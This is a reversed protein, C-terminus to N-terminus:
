EEDYGYEYEEDYEIEDDCRIENKDQQQEEKEYYGALTTEDNKHDVHKVWVARNKHDQIIHCGGTCGMGQMHQKLHELNQKKDKNCPVLQCYYGGDKCGLDHWAGEWVALLCEKVCGHKHMCHGILDRNLMEQDCMVCRGMANGCTDAHKLEVKNNNILLSCKKDCKHGEVLHKGQFQTVVDVFGCGSFPCKIMSKCSTDHKWFVSGTSNDLCLKCRESCFHVEKMHKFGNEIGFDEGCIDCHLTHKGLKHDELLGFGEGKFFIAGCSCKMVKACDKHNVDYHKIKEEKNKGVVEHCYFCYVNSHKKKMHYERDLIAMNDSCLSCAYVTSLSNSKHAQKVHENWANRAIMENCPRCYMRDCKTCHEGCKAQHIEGCCVFVSKSKDNGHEEKWHANWWDKEIVKKCHQCWIRNKCNKCYNGAKKALVKKNDCPCRWGDSHAKARHEDPDIVPEKCIQCFWSPSECTFRCSECLDGRALVGCKRCIWFSDKEEKHCQGLHAHWKEDEEFGKKHSQCYVYGCIRCYLIGKQKQYQLEECKTCRWFKGCYDTNDVNNDWNDEKFLGDTEKHWIHKEEIEQARIQCSVSKEYKCTEEDVHQYDNMYMGGKDVKEHPQIEPIRDEMKAEQDYCKHYTIHADWFCWPFEGKCKLCKIDYQKDLEHMYLHDIIEELRLPIDENGEDKCEGCLFAGPQKFNIALGKPLKKSHKQEYHNYWDTEKIWVDCKEKTTCPDCRFYVGKGGFAKDGCSVAVCLSLVCTKLHKYIINKM